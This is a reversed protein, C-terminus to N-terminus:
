LGALLGKTYGLTETLGALPDKGDKEYEYGALGQYNIKLLAALIAKLDLIGRGGEIPTNRNGLASIDKLHVDYLREKCKIIAEAPNVGARATHGVDICLGIRKDFKEVAKWVDYPSPFQKDEPGHNHIALKINFEKVMKDLLPVADTPPACVITTVGIDRAYEFARRVDAEDNKMGVNGVSLPVMGADRFMQARQKREETTHSLDIHNKVNKISIYKMGARQLGKITEEIPWERFTYTAVGIKLGRWRDKEEAANAAFSEPNALNPVSLAAAAVAGTKLLDRRSFTTM